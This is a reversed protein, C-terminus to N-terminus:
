RKTTRKQVGKIAGIVMRKLAAISWAGPDNPPITAFGIPTAKPYLAFIQELLAALEESSPDSSVKNVHMSVERPDLVGMDIHVYLQPGACATSRAGISGRGCRPRRM